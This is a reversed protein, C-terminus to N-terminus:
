ASGGGLERQHEQHKLGKRWSQERRQDCELGEIDKKNHAPSFRDAGMDRCTGM